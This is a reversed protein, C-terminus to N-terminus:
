KKRVQDKLSRELAFYVKLREIKVKVMDSDDRMGEGELM